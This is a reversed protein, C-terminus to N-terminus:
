KHTVDQCECVRLSGSVDLCYLVDWDCVNRPQTKISVPAKKKRLAMLGNRHILVSFSPTKPARAWVTLDPYISGGVRSERKVRLRILFVCKAPQGM